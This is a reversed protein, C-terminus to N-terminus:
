PVGGTLVCDIVTYSVTRRVFPLIDAKLTM